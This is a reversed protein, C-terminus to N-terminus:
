ATEAKAPTKRRIQSLIKDGNPQEILWDNFLELVTKGPKKDLIVIEGTGNGWTMKSTQDDYSLVGKDLAFKIAAKRKTDESMVIDAFMVPDKEAFEGVMDTLEELPLHINWNQGAAFERVEQATMNEIHAMAVAKQQRIKNRGKAEKVKDLQKFLVEVSKNRHEGLISTENCNMLQMIEHLERHEIKDGSLHLTGDFPNDFDFTKCWRIGDKDIRDQIGIDVMKDSKTSGEDWITDKAYFQRKTYFVEKRGTDPDEVIKHELIQYIVREGPKLVHIQKKLDPSINNFEGIVRM